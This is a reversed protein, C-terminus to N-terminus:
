IQYFLISIQRLIKSNIMKFLESSNDVILENNDLTKNDENERNQEALGFLSLYM